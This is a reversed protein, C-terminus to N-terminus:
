PKRARVTLITNSGNSKEDSSANHDNPAASTMGSTGDGRM